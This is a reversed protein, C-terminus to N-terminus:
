FSGGVAGGATGGVTGDTTGADTGGITGGVIGGATGITTTNREEDEVEIEGCAVVISNTATTDPLNTLTSFAKVIISKGELNIDGSYAGSSRLDSELATTTIRESINFSRTTGLDNPITFNQTSCDASIFTYHPNIINQPIGDVDITIDVDEDNVKITATGDLGVLNPDTSRLDSRYSVNDIEAQSPRSAEFEEFEEDYFERCSSLIFLGILGLVKMPIM